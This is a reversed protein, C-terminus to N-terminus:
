VTINKRPSIKERPYLLGASAEHGDNNLKKIAVIDSMTAASRLTM